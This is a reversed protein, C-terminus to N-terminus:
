PSLDGELNPIHKIKPWDKNSGRKCRKVLIPCKTIRLTQLSTLDRMGNPLSKLSHCDHIELTQLSTLGRMGRPLSKLEPCNCIELSTLNCIKEPIAMLCPCNLIELRQLSTVHQLGVPISVLKPLKNFELSRLSRLGQWEMEDGNSLDVESDTIKMKELAILHQMGQPLPGHCHLSILKCLLEEPLPEQLRGIELSKLKSLPVFFSRGLVSSSSTSTTATSSSQNSPTAINIIGMKMTQKLPKLNCTDLNLKELYPFLPISTLQPCHQIELSSLRPFSPLNDVDEVSDRRRRWWGKLNSCCYLILEELSPLFSSNSFEGSNERESIYELGKMSRLSLSKLSHFQDLPSLHRCRYCLELSFKVLNTLLSIGTPFRVGGYNSLYLEQLNPHPQLAELSKEDYDRNSENVGKEEWMLKLCQLYQKEKLNANMCESAAGKRHRLGWIKLTGRMQNLGELEKLGGNRRYLSSTNKGIVFESLTQLQTLKGLGRPMHTLESCGDMELYRLNVLKNIDRPLEKLKSCGSLRLTQLNQLRTISNPLMKILDNGSLDLYRLHKLKGISSPVTNIKTDHLDLLRMFKFNSVIASCTSKDLRTYISQTPCLFTRIKSAKRLSKLIKSSLFTGDFSVHHAKEYIDEKKSYFTTCDSEVVEKALDHMFDHMKFQLINGWEDEEVEQFFSRWVLEKFYEDGIEELSQNQSSSRIFGQAMWMKILTPKHIKYDKPFLCCYAFCQKLYSPLHDYSLKLTELIDSAKSLENNKFSSWDKEPNKFYLISGISRIALPVGRCKEIIEMGIAKIGPNKPEKGNEFAMQKFLIWADFDNLGKLFYAQMTQVIEAVKNERTTVLIKSGKAGSMLINKLKLWKERDDNWVDDLVLLYKKKDIEKKLKKVLTNMALKKPKKIIACELIKEVIGKVEFNHSVCVWLKKEFHKKIEEDSFVLQALTTKGLGGIGVIPLISVNEEVNSDLLIGIITKKDNERGIVDEARVFSHTERARNRVQTEELREEFHFLERDRGITKLREMMAKVKHAMKHAYAHQKSKSFCFRVKNVEQQLAETSIDDLLDDADYIADRLRKLWEKVQNSHEKKEADLLVAKITSVTERLKGIEEKVGLLLGIEQVALEGAKEIIGSAVEFLVGEAM